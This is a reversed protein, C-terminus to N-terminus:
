PFRWSISTTTVYDTGTTNPPPDNDTDLTQSVNWWFPEGRVLRLRLTARLVTRFRGGSTISPFTNFTTTLGWQKFEYFSLSLGGLAEIDNNTNQGAAPEFQENNWVLGGLVKLELQNNRVLTRVPGGGM